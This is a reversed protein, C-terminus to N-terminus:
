FARWSAWTPSLTVFYRRPDFKGRDPNISGLSSRVRSSVYDVTVKGLMAGKNFMNTVWNGMIHLSSNAAIYIGKETYLSGEIVRMVSGSPPMILLGGNRVMLTFVTRDDDSRDLTRFDCGPFVNGSCVIMGKGVVNFVDMDAGTEDKPKFPKDISGLSGAIFSIGNLLFVKKGGVKTMRNPIDKIFDDPTQYFYTAKKAYQEVTYLNPAMNELKSPDYTPTDRVVAGTEDTSKLNELNFDYKALVDFTYWIPIVIPPPPLLCAPYPFPLLPLRDSMNMGVICMRWQRYQKMVNGEIERTMTPHLAGAGFLHTKNNGTGASPITYLSNPTGMYPMEWRQFCDRMFAVSLPIETQLPKLLLTAGLEIVNTSMSGVHPTINLMFDDRMAKLATEVNSYRQGSTQFTVGGYNTGPSVTPPPTTGSVMGSPVTTSNDAPARESVVANINYKGGAGACAMRSKLDVIALIEIGRLISDFTTDGEYAKVGSYDGIASVNVVLPATKDATMDKYNVRILGPFERKALEDDTPSKAAGTFVDTVKGWVGGYDFNNVCFDGGLSNFTIRQNALNTLFFSYMPAPPEVDAVKFEKIAEIRRKATYGDQGTISAECLIKLEGYKELYQQDDITPNVSVGTPWLEGVSKPMAVKDYPIRIPYKNKGPYLVKNFLQDALFDLSTVQAITYGGLVGSPIMKDIAAGVNINVITFSLSPAPPPMPITIKVPILIRLWALSDPIKIVLATYGDGDLFKKVDPRINYGIEVGPVKFTAFDNGPSNRFAKNVSVKVNVDWAKASDQTMYKVLNELEKGGAQLDAKTLVVEKKTEGDILLSDDNGLGASKDAVAAGGRKLPLRLRVAVSDAKGKAPDFAARDNVGSAVICLAREIAAEALCNTQIGRESQQTQRGEEITGKMFFSASAFIVGLLGIVIIFANGSRFRSCCATRKM